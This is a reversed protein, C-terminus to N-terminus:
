LPSSSIAARSSAERLDSSEPPLKGDKSQSEGHDPQAGATEQALQRAIKSLIEHISKGGDTKLEAGLKSMEELLYHASQFHGNAGLLILSDIMREANTTIKKLMLRKVDDATPPNPGPALVEVLPEANPNIRALDKSIATSKKTMFFRSARSTAAGRQVM